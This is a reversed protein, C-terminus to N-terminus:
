TPRAVLVAICFLTFCIASDLLSICLLASLQEIDSSGVSVPLSQLLPTPQAPGIMIAPISLRADSMDVERATSGILHNLPPSVHPNHYSTKLRVFHYMFDPVESPGILRSPGVAVLVGKGFPVLTCINWWSIPLYSYLFLVFFRRRYGDVTHSRLM